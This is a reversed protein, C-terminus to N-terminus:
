DQQIRQMTIQTISRQYPPKGRTVLVEFTAGWDAYSTKGQNRTAITIGARVIDKYQEAQMAEISHVEIGVLPGYGEVYDEYSLRAQYSEHLLNYAGKMDGKGLAELYEGVLAIAEDSGPTPPTAEEASPTEQPGTVIPLDIETSSTITQAPCPEARTSVVVLRASILVTLPISAIIQGDQIADLTNKEWLEDWRLTFQAKTAAQAQLTVSGEITRSSSDGIKYERRVISEIVSRQAGLSLAPGSTDLAFTSPLSLTEQHLRSLPNSGECNDLTVSLEAGPLIHNGQGPSAHMQFRLSAEPTSKNTTVQATPGPRPSSVPKVRACGASLVSVLLLLALARCGSM